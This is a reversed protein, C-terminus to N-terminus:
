QDETFSVESGGKSLLRGVVVLVPAVAGDVLSGRHGLRFEGGGTADIGRYLTRVDEAAQNVFVPGRSSGSWRWSVTRSGWVAPSLEQDHETRRRRGSAIPERPLHDRYRHAPILTVSQGVAVDLLQQGFASYGDIVHSHVPPHLAERRLEYVDGPRASINRPIAPEDVLRVDLDGTPPGVDILRKVLM